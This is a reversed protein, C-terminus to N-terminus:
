LAGRCRKQVTNRSCRPGCSAGAVDWAVSGFAICPTGVVSGFAAEAAAPDLPCEQMAGLRQKQQQLAGGVSGSATEAAAPDVCREQLTGQRQKQFWLVSRSREWVNIKNSCPWLVSRCRKRVNNRTSQQLLWM